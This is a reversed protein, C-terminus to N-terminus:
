SKSYNKLLTDSFEKFAKPSNLFCNEVLEDLAEPVSRWWGRGQPTKTKSDKAFGLVCISYSREGWIAWKGSMPMWVITGSNYRIADAPSTKPEKALLSFYEKGSSHSSMKLANYYGFHSFYYNVPNPERVSMYIETDGSARALEKIDMDWFRSTMTWDFEEFVFNGFNKKFVQHPLGKNDDLFITSYLNQLDQFDKKNDMLMSIAKM